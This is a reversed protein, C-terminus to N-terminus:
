MKHKTLFKPYLDVKVRYYNPEIQLIKEFILKALHPQETKEYALATNTLLNLYAWNQYTDKKAEIIKAAKIYFKLAEKKDGGFVSPSYYLINGKDINAQINQPDLGYAKNVNASSESGLFIAKFRNIGISLGIFAGKYSYATANKPSKKLVLAILKNAKEINKEATELQKRGILYSTFGYYYDILELYQEITTPPNNTEFNHIINEWKYMEHNIFSTYTASKYNSEAYTKISSLLGACTFIFIILLIKKNKM